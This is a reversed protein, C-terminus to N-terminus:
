LEVRRKSEFSLMSDSLTTFFSSFPNMSVEKLSLCWLNAQSNFSNPNKARLDKM